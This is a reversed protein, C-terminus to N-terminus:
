QLIVPLAKQLLGGSSSEARLLYNGAPLEQVPLRYIQLGGNARQRGVEMGASNLLVFTVPEQQRGSVYIQISGRAPNPFIRYNFMPTETDAPKSHIGSRFIQTGLSSVLILQVQVPDDGTRLSYQLVSNENWNEPKLLAAQIFEGGARNSYRISIQVSGETKVGPQWRIEAGKPLFQVPDQAAANVAMVLLPFIGSIMRSIFIKQM